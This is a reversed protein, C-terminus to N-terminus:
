TKGGLPRSPPRGDTPPGGFAQAIGMWEAAAAGEVALRTDAVNRRQTVVLCFDLAPGSIRDAAEEPGWLWAEGGPGLLEVRVPATPPVLGRNTYSFGRTAVGLHAIHRLRRSPVTPLGLADRVDQGHAFTEMLRATLFTRAKMPPGIWPIRSEPDVVGVAAITEARARRWWDLVAAPALARGRAVMREEYGTFDAAAAALREFFASSNSAAVAALEEGLALHAIQDHITWGAAPTATGWERDALGAVLEDLAAQEEMLDAAVEGAAPGM